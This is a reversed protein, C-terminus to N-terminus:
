PGKNIIVGEFNKTGGYANLEFTHGQEKGQIFRLKDGVIEADQLEGDLKFDLYHVLEHLVSSVVFHQPNPKIPNSGKQFEVIWHVNVYIRESEKFRFEAWRSIDSNFWPVIQPPFGRSLALRAVGIAPGAAIRDKGGREIGACDLLANWVKPNSPVTPLVKQIYEAYIPHAKADESSFMVM